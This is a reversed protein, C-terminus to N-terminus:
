KTSFREGIKMGLWAMPFYACTIDLINFWLPAPIQKAMDIGGIFFVGAIIFSLKLKHSAAIKYVIISGFLPGACHAFFVSLFHGISYKHINSIITEIKNFDVGEPLPLIKMGVVHIIMMCMAGILLGIIVSFINRFINNSFFSKIFEM